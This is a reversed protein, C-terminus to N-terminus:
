GFLNDIGGDSELLAKFVAKNHDTEPKAASNTASASTPISRVAKMQNLMDSKTSKAVNGMFKDKNKLFYIDDFSIQHTDAWDMMSDFDDDSIKHRDKFEAAARQQEATRQEKTRTDRETQLENQVRTNVLNDVMNNFVKASDSNPKQVAEDMDFVFDDPLNLKETMDVPKRGHELYEKITQVMGEDSKLSEIFPKFTEVEDLKAKMKQAERSSDKYRKEWDVGESTPAAETSNNDEQQTVMDPLTDMTEQIENDEDDIIAGNVDRDLADFFGDASGFVAENVDEQSPSAEVNTSTEEAVEPNAAGQNESM